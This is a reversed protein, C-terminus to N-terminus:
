FQLEYGVIDSAECPFMFSSETITVVNRVDLEHIVYPPDISLIQLIPYLKYKRDYNRLYTIYNHKRNINCMVCVNFTFLLSDACLFHTNNTHTSTRADVYLHLLLRFIVKPWINIQYKCDKFYLVCLRSANM